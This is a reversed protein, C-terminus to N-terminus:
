AYGVKSNQIYLLLLYTYLLLIFVLTLGLSNDCIRHEVGINDLDFQSFSEAYMLM